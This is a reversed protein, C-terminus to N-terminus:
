LHTLLSLFSFVGLEEEDAVEQDYAGAFIDLQSKVEVYSAV